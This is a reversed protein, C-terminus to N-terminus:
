LFLTNAILFLISSIFAFKIAGIFCHFVIDLPSMNIYDYDVSDGVDDAFVADRM